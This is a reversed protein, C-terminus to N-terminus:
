TSTNTHSSPDHRGLLATAPDTPARRAVAIELLLDAKLGRRQEGMLDRLGLDHALQADAALVDAAPIAAPLLAALLCQAAAARRAARRPHRGLLEGLDLLDQQGTGPRAPECAVQPRQRPNRLDDLLVGPDSMMRPM